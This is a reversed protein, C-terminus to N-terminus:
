QYAYRDKNYGYDKQSYQGPDKEQELAWDEILDDKGQIYKDRLYKM